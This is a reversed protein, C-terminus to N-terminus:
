REARMVITHCKANIFTFLRDIVRWIRFPLFRFLPSLRLHLFVKNQMTFWRPASFGADRFIETLQTEDFSHLHANQPTPRNCHICLSYRLVERYPTSVVVRGGAAVVAHTEAAVRAPENCHELVESAVVCSFVGPKFPLRAADAVVPLTREGFRERLRQLNRLGLDVSVIHVDPREALEEMLWGGGSGLDCIVDGATFRASHFVAEQIRRAADHDAGSRLAFYDFEEADTRYHAQHDALKM